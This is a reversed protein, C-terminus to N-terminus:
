PPGRQAVIAFRERERGGGAAERTVQGELQVDRLAVVRELNAVVRSASPAFGVVRVLGNPEIRLAVLFASDGLVRTAEAVLTLTQSRGREATAFDALAGRAADLERRIMLASDIAVANIALERRAESSIIALRATCIAGGLLWLAGALTTVRLLRRRTVSTRAARTDAPLLQLRPLAIAAAFAPAFHAAETEFLALAPHWPVTVERVGSVRRSRWAGGASVAVLESTGGNPFVLEGTASGDSVARQVVDAAPGLAEVELGAQACGDLIARLLPEPAAAAWLARTVSDVTVVTADTVLPVGNRRFLRPAELTVYRRAAAESLPPAPVITRLQVLDREIAVRVHRVPQSAESALRAIADTLM